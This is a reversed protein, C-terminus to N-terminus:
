GERAGATEQVPKGFGLDLPKEDPVPACELDSGFRYIAALAQFIVYLGYLVSPIVLYFALLKGRTLFVLGGLVLSLGLIIILHLRVRLAKESLRPELARRALEAMSTFLIWGLAAMVLTIATQVHWDPSWSWTFGNDLSVQVPEPAVYLQYFSSGLGFWALVLILESRKLMSSAMHLGAIALGWGIPDWVLDLNNYEIDVCVILAGWFIFRFGQVPELHEPVESGDDRM